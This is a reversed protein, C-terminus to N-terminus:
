PKPAPKLVEATLEGMRYGLTQAFVVPNASVEDPIEDVKHLATTLHGINESLLEAVSKKAKIDKVLEVLLVGVDDAEEQEESQRGAKDFKEYLRPCTTKLM